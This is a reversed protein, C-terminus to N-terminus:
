RDAAPEDRDSVRPSLRKRFILDAIPRDEKIGRREFKTMPRHDPRPAFGEATNVMAPEATLVELMQDAYDGIDTACHM